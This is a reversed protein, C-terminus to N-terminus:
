PRSGEQGPVFSRPPSAKGEHPPSYEEAHKAMITSAMFVGDPGIRGEVVAGKGESFLDPPVGHFYVPVSVAGDTIQFHYTLNKLDKQLSGAVVMGGMRLFKDKSTTEQGKLESPTVFYVIAERMGGYILYALAALIIVGGILFRRTKHM